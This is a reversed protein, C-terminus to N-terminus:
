KIRKDHIVVQLCLFSFIKIVTFFKVIFFFFWGVMMSITGILFALLVPRSIGLVSIDSLLLLLLFVLRCLTVLMTCGPRSVGQSGTPRGLALLCVLPTASALATVPSDV